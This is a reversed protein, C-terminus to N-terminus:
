RRKKGTPRSAGPRQPRGRTAARGDLRRPRSPGSRAVAIRRRRRGAGPRAADDPEAAVQAPGRADRPGAHAPWRCRRVPTVKARPRRGAPLVRKRLAIMEPEREKLDAVLPTALFISSYAGAAIGVFLALALDNLTGAGLLGRRRVAPRRGAAARDVTTNISRVLTQNVALNAAEGYTM